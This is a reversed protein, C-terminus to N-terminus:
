RLELFKNKGEGSRRILKKRELEQTHRSFSAKPIDCIKRLQSSKIKGTEKLKDLILNERKGLIERVSVGNKKKRKDPRKLFYFSLGMIILIIAAGLIWMILSSRGEEIVYTVETGGISSVYIRNNKISIEGGDISIIRAGAPLILNIEVDELFYSFSWIEGAKSTLAQTRGIIEGDRIVVGDPLSIFEDTGGLLLAVGGEDLYIDIFTYASVNSILFLGVFLYCALKM